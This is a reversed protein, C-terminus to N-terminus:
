ISCLQDPYLWPTVRCTESEGTPPPPHSPTAFLLKRPMARTCVHGYGATPRGATGPLVLAPLPHQTLQCVSGSGNERVPVLDAECGGPSAEMQRASTRRKVHPQRIILLQVWRLEWNFYRKLISWHKGAVFWRYCPREAKRASQPLLHAALCEDLPTRWTHVYETTM